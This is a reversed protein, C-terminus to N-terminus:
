MSKAIDKAPAVIHPHHSIIRRKNSLQSRHIISNALTDFSDPSIMQVVKFRRERRLPVRFHM